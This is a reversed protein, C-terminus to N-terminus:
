PLIFAITGDDLLAGVEAVQRSIETSIDVDRRNGGVRELPILVRTMQGLLRDVLALNSRLVANRTDSGGRPFVLVAGDTAESM